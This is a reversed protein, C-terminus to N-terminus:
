IISTDSAASAAHADQLGLHPRSRADRPCYEAFLGCGLSSWDTWDTVATDTSVCRGSVRGRLWARVEVFVTSTDPDLQMAERFIVRMLRKDGAAQPAVKSVVSSCGVHDIGQQVDGGEREIVLQVRGELLETQMEWFEMAISLARDLDLEGHADAERTATEEPEALAEASVDAFVKTLTAQVSRLSVRSTGSEFESEHLGGNLQLLGALVTL